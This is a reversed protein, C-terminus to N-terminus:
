ARGRGKGKGQRSRLSGVLGRVFSDLVGHGFLLRGVYVVQGSRFVREAFHGLKIGILCSVAHYAICLIVATFSLALQM